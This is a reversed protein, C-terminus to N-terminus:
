TIKEHHWLRPEKVYLPFDPAALFLRGGKRSLHITDKLLEGSARGWLFVCSFVLLTNQFYIPIPNRARRPPHRPLGRLRAARIQESKVLACIRSFDTVSSCRLWGGRGAALGGSTNEFCARLCKGWFTQHNSHRTLSIACGSASRCTKPAFGAVIAMDGNQCERGNRIRKLFGTSLGMVVHSLSRTLYDSNKSM